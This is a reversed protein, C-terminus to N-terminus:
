DKNIFSVVDPFNDMNINNYSCVEEFVKLLDKKVINWMPTMPTIHIIHDYEVPKFIVYFLNIFQGDWPIFFSLIALEFYQNNINLNFSVQRFDSLPDYLRFSADM